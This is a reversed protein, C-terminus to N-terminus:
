ELWDEFPIWEEAEEDWKEMEMELEMAEGEINPVDQKIRYNIVIEEAEKASNAEVDFNFMTQIRYIAM